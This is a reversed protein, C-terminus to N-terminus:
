STILAATVGFFTPWSCSNTACCNTTPPSRVEVASLPTRKSPLQDWPCQRLTHAQSYARLKPTFTDARSSMTTPLRPYFTQSPTQRVSRRAMTLSRVLPLSRQLSHSSVASLNILTRSAQELLGINTQTIPWESSPLGHILFESALTRIRTTPLPWIPLYPDSARM